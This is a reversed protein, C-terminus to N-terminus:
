EGKILQNIYQQKDPATPFSTPMLLFVRYDGGAEFTDQLLKELDTPKLWHTMLGTHAFRSQWEGNEFLKETFAAVGTWKTMYWGDKDPKEKVDVVSYNKSFIM